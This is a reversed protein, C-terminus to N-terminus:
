FDLWMEVRTVGELAQGQSAIQQALATRLQSWMRRDGTGAAAVSYRFQVSDAAPADGGAPADGSAGAGPPSSGPGSGLAGTGGAAPGLNIGPVAGTAAGGAGEPGSGVAAASPATGASVVVPRVNVLLNSGCTLTVQAGGTQVGSDTSTTCGPPPLLRISVDFTASRGGPSAALPLLALMAGAAMPGLPRAQMGSRLDTIV